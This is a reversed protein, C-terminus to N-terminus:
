KVIYVGTLVGVVVGALTGVVTYIKWQTLNQEAKDESIDGKDACHELDKELSLVNYNLDIILHGIDETRPGNCNEAVLDLQEDQTTTVPKLETRTTAKKGACGSLGGLM